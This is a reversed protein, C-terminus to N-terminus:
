TPMPDAKREDVEGSEEADAPTALGVSAPRVTLKVTPAVRQSPVRTIEEAPEGAVPATVPEAVERREPSTWRGDSRRLMGPVLTRMALYADILRLEERTLPGTRETSLAPPSVQM